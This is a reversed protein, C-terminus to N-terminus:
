LKKVFWSMLDFQHSLQVALSHGDAYPTMRAYKGDWYDRRYALKVQTDPSFRYGLSIEIDKV